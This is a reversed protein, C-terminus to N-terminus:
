LEWIIAQQWQHRLADRAVIVLPRDGAAPAHSRGPAGTSASASPAPGSIPSATCSSARPSTRRRCSNSSSRIRELSPSGHIRLARRAAEAGAERGPAGAADAASSWRAIAAVRAAAEELRQQPLRGDRVAESIAAILADVAEEHLDHGVCLADVGAALAQVGAEEVGVGGSIAQMELADTVVLGDFGLEERLLGTLIRRSM